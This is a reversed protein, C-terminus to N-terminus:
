DKKEQAWVYASIRKVVRDYISMVIQASEPYTPEGFPTAFDRDEQSFYAEHNPHSHYFAKIKAGTTEAEHIISELEKLDMAYAITASRPYSEPDLAHLDNQINQCRRVDDIKGKDLIVGCCEEPFTEIAHLSIEEWAKQTLTLATIGSM